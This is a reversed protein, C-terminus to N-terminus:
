RISLHSSSAGNEKALQRAYLCQQLAFICNFEPYIIATIFLPLRYTFNDRKQQMYILATRWINLRRENADEADSYGEFNSYLVNPPM